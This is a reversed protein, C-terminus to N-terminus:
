SELFPQLAPSTAAPVLLAKLWVQRSLIPRFPWCLSPFRRPRMRPQRFIRSEPPYWSSILRSACWSPRLRLSDIPSERGVESSSPSTKDKLIALSACLEGFHSLVPPSLLQM